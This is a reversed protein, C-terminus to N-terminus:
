LIRFLDDLIRNFTEIVQTSASYATQLQILNAMEEDLNVASLDLNQKELTQQYSRETEFTRETTSANTSQKTIMLKSYDQLTTASSIQATIDGGPGVNTNNFPVHDVDSMTLELAAIPSSLGDIYTFDGGNDPVIQLFGNVDLSATVKPVNTNITNVLDAGTDLPDITITIPDDIGVQIQFSPNVPATTGVEIGLETFADPTLNLTGITVTDNSNLVLQGSPGISALGPFALNINNVLDTATDAAGIVINQAPAVGVQITFTDSTGPIISPTSDALINLSEINTTGIVETQRDIGLTAFLTGVGSIDVDGLAESRVTNEFVNNVVRRLFEPSGAEVTAGTTGSRMLTIDNRIAPNIRIEAAFGAYDTPVNNPVAGDADTFLRIGSAEFRSAMKHALEDLQAHYQPLERDRLELLAGLRGGLNTQAALDTGTTENDVFVGAVSDPYFTRPGIREPDFLLERASNDALVTGAKTMIEVVKDSREFYDIEIEESLTAIARDREDELAATTRGAKFETAISNNLDAITQLSANIIDISISAEDQADNRMESMLLSFDNMQKAVYESQAFTLELLTSNNPENALEAFSDKLKGLQATISLNEEPPRHFDQILSQYRQKTELGKATATQVFLDRQLVIDIERQILGSRVGRGVGDLVISSQDLTKRTYGPTSANSINDSVTSIQRNINQISSLANGLSIFSM